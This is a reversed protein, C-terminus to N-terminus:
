SHRNFAPPLFRVLQKRSTAHGTARSNRRRQTFLNRTTECTEPASATRGVDAYRLNDQSDDRQGDPSLADAAARRNRPCQAVTVRSMEGSTKGTADRVNCSWRAPSRTLEPSGNALRSVKAWSLPLAQGSTFHSKLPMRGFQSTFITASSKDRKTFMVACKPPAIRSMFKFRTSTQLEAVMDAITQHSLTFATM